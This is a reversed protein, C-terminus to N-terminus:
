SHGLGFRELGGLDQQEYKRGRGQWNAADGKDTSVDWSYEGAAM